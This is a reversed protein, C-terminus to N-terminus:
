EPVVYNGIIKYAKKVDPYIDSSALITGKPAWFTPNAGQLDGLAEVHGDYFVAEFRFGDGSSHPVGNGHRAWLTRGDYGGGGNLPTCSREHGNSFIDYAGWDAYGGGTSSAYAYDEDFATVVGGAVKLYRSGDALFIKKSTNGVKTIKPGYGVPPNAYQNGTKTITTAGPNPNNTIMFLMGTSFSAYPVASPVTAGPFATSANFLSCVADNSPCVFMPFHLEFNVRDWRAAGNSRAADAAASYPVKIGLVDLMPSQWDWIQNIGPSNSSTLTADAGTTNPSGLIYDHNQAAYMIMGLAMSHMNAACKIAAASKRAKNLSPLLISILLAIIGIVVLLEVLTFAHRKTKM